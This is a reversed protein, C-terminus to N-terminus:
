GKNAQSSGDHSGLKVIIGAIKSSADTKAFGLAAQSMKQSVAVDTTIKQVQAIFINPLLNTQEIVIGAGTAAYEYANKTQHDNAAVEPPLPILISPKGFAATEFIAGASARTVVVDAAMYALNIEDGFYDIAKYRNKIDEPLKDLLFAVGGLVTEYNKKGTQHLIQTVQLIAPLNDVILDNIKEAGQSGGTVLMLPLESSLGLVQKGREKDEQETNKLLYRRIPNGVLYVNNNPFYQASSPFSILVLKAFRASLANTMGPVTDSEHIIVPIRYFRAVLVVALAGPGGKSFVVDPMFWYIKFLAQIISYIFKPGDIFNAVSFYRRLKSEAVRMVRISNEELVKKFQGYAGLYRLDLNIWLEHCLSQLEATVAILPYIHGGTGGGTLLVRLKPQKPQRPMKASM